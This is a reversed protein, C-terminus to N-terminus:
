FAWNLGFLHVKGYRNNGHCERRELLDYDSIQVHKLSLVSRKDNNWSIARKTGYHGNIHSYHNRVMGDMWYAENENIGQM